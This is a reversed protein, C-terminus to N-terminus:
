TPDPLDIEDLSATMQAVFQYRSKKAATPDPFNVPDTLEVRDVWVGPALFTGAAAWLHAYALRALDFAAVDNDAFCEVLLRADAQILNRASGGARTVRTFTAPMPNPIRTAVGAGGLRPKLHTVAAAEIDVPALATTM